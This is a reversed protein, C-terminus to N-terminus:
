GADVDVHDIGLQRGRGEAGVLHAAGAIRQEHTGDREECALEDQVLGIACRDPPQDATIVVGHDTGFVAGGNLENIQLAVDDFQNGRVVIAHM